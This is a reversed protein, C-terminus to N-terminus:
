RRIEISRLLFQESTSTKKEMFLPFKMKIPIKLTLLIEDFDIVFFHNLFVTTM